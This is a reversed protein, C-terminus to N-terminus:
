KFRSSRAYSPATAAINAHSRSFNIKENLMLADCLVQDQMVCFAPNGEGFYTTLKDLMTCLYDKARDCCAM